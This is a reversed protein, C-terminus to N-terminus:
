AFGALYCKYEVTTLSFLAFFCAKFYSVVRYYSWWETLVALRRHGCTATKDPFLVKKKSVLDRSFELVVKFLLLHM